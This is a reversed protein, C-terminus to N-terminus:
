RSGVVLGLDALSRRLLQQRDPGFDQGAASLLAKGEPINGNSIEIAAAGYYMFLTPKPQKLKELWDRAQQDNKQVVYTLLIKFRLLDSNPFQNLLAVFALRAEAVKKELFLLEALNFKPAFANPDLTGLRRYVARAESFQGTESLVAAKVELVRASGPALAEASKLMELAQDFQRQGILAVVQPLLKKEQDPALAEASKTARLPAGSYDLELSPESDPQSAPAGIQGFIGGRVISTEAKTSFSSVLLIVLSATRISIVAM